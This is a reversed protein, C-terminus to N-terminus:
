PASTMRVFRGNASSVCVRDIKSVDQNSWGCPTQSGAM